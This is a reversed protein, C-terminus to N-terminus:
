SFAVAVDAAASVLSSGFSWGNAEPTDTVVVPTKPQLMALVVPLVTVVGVCVLLILETQRSM